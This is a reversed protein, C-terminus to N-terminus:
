LKFRSVDIGYTKALDPNQKAMERMFQRKAKGRASRKLKRQVKTMKPGKKRPELGYKKLESTRTTKREEKRKKAAAKREEVSAYKKRPRRLGLGELVKKRKDALSLSESSIINSFDPTGPTIIGAESTSTIAVERKRTM